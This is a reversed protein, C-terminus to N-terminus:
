DNEKEKKNARSNWANLLENGSEAEDWPIVFMTKCNTCAIVGAVGFGYIKSKVEGGCFPCPKLKDSM